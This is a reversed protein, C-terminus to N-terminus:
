NRCEVLGRVDRFDHLADALMDCLDDHDIISGAVSSRPNGSSGSGSAQLQRLIAALGQGQPRADSERASVVESIYYREVAVALMQWFIDGDHKADGFFSSGIQDDTGAREIASEHRPGAIKRVDDAAPQSRREDAAFDPVALTSEPQESQVFETVRFQPAPVVLELHFDQDLHGPRAARNRM